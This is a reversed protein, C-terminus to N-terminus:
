YGYASMIKEATSAIVADSLYNPNSIKAKVEAVKDARVDPTDLAVQNMYYEVARDRAEQSVSITDTDTATNTVQETPKANQTLNVSNISSIKDILM